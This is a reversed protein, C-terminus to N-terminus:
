YNLSRRGVRWLVVAVLILRPCSGLMGRAHGSCAGFMGPVRRASGVKREEGFRGKRQMTKCKEESEVRRSVCCGGEVWWELADLGSCSSGMILSRCGVRWLVLAVLILRPCSGLGGQSRGSCAGCGGCM